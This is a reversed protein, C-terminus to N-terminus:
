FGSTGPPANTPVPRRLVRVEPKNTMWKRGEPSERFAAYQAQNRVVERPDVPLNDAVDTLLRAVAAHPVFVARDPSMAVAGLPQSEETDGKVRVGGEVFELDSPSCELQHAAIVRAKPTGRTTSARRSPLAWAQGGGAGAGRGSGRLASGQTSPM